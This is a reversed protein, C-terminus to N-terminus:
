KEVPQPLMDSLQSKLAPVKTDGPSLRLCTQIPDFGTFSLDLLHKGSQCTQNTGFAAM